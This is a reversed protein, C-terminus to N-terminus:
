TLAACIEKFSPREQSKLSLCDTQLNRLQKIISVDEEKNKDILCRNLLDELLCGFARSELRKLAEKKERSAEDVIHSLFSAAGFDGLISEGVDNFLINHAYLDGHIIGRKHLHAIM